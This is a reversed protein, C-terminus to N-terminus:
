SIEDRSLDQSLHLKCMHNRIQEEWTPRGRSKKGAIMISEMSRMPMNIPKKEACIWVIDIEKECMKATVVGLRDRLIQNRIKVDVKVNM